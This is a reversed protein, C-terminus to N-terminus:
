QGEIISSADFSTVVQWAHWFNKGFDLAGECGDYSMVDEHGNCLHPMSIAPGSVVAGFFYLYATTATSYKVLHISGFDKTLITAASSLLNKQCFIIHSKPTSLFIITSLALFNSQSM